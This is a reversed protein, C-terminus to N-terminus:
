TEAQNLGYQPQGLYERIVDGIRFEWQEDNQLVVMIESTNGVSKQRTQKDDNVCSSLGLLIIIAFSFSLLKSSM